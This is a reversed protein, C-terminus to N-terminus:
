YIDNMIIEILSIAAYRLSISSQSETWNASLYSKNTCNPFKNTISGSFISEKTESPYKALISGYKSFGYKITILKM